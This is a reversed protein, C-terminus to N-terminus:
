FGTNKWHIDMTSSSIKSHGHANQAIKQLPYAAQWCFSALSPWCKVTWLCWCWALSVTSITFAVSSLSLSPSNHYSIALLHKLFGGSKCTFFHTSYTKPKNMLYYYNNCFYNTAMSQLTHLLPSMPLISRPGPGPPRARMFLRDMTWPSVFYGSFNGPHVASNAVHRQGHDSASTGVVSIWLAEMGHPQPTPDLPGTPLGLTGVNWSGTPRHTQTRPTTRRHNMFWSDHIM